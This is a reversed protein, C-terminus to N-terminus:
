ISQHKADEYDWFVRKSKFKFIFRLIMSVDFKFSLIGNESIFHYMFRQSLCYKTKVEIVSITPSSENMFELM